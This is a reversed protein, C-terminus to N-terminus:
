VKSTVGDSWPVTVTSIRSHPVPRLLFHFEAAPEAYDKIAIWWCNRNMLQKMGVFFEGIGNIAVKLLFTVPKREAFDINPVSHWAVKYSYSFSNIGKFLEKPVPSQSLPYEASAACSAASFPFMAAVCNLM